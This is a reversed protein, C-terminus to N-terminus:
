LIFFYMEKEAKPLQSMRIKYADKSGVKWWPTRARSALDANSLGHTCRAASIFTSERLPNRGHDILDPSQPQKKTNICSFGLKGLNNKPSFFEFVDLAVNLLVLRRVGNKVWALRQDHSTGSMLHPSGM